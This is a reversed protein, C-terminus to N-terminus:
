AFLGWRIMHPLPVREMRFLLEEKVWSRRLISEDDSRAGQAGVIM